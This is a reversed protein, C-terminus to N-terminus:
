RLLYHVEDSDVLEEYIVLSVYVKASAPFLVLSLLRGPEVAAEVWEGREVM